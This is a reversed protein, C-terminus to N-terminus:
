EVQSPRAVFSVEAEAESLVEANSSGQGTQLDVDQEFLEHGPERLHLEDAGRDAVLLQQDIGPLVYSDDEGLALM